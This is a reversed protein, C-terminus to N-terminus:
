PRRRGAPESRPARSGRVFAVSVRVALLLYCGAILVAPIGATLNAAISGSGMPGSLLAAFLTILMPLSIVWTGIVVFPTPRQTLLRNVLWGFAWVSELPATTAYFTLPMGCHACFHAIRPLITLCHPCHTIESADSTEDEPM